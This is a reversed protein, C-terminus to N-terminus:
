PHTLHDHLASAVFASGAAEQHPLLLDERSGDSLTLRLTDGAPSLHAAIGSVEARGFSRATATVPLSVQGLIAPRHLLRLGERTVELSRPPLFLVAFLGWLLVALMTWRGAQWAHPRLSPLLQLLAGLAGGIAVALVVAASIRAGRPWADGVVRAADRLIYGAHQHVLVQEVPTAPAAPLLWAMLAIGGGAVAVTAGAVLMFHAAENTLHDREGAM